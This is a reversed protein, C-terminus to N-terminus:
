SNIIDSKYIFSIKLTNKYNIMMKIPLFISMRIIIFYLETNWHYICRNCGKNPNFILNFLTNFMEIVIEDFEYTLEGHLVM